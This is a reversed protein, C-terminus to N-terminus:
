NLNKVACIINSSIIIDNTEENDVWIQSEVFDVINGVKGKLELVKELMYESVNKETLFKMTMKIANEAIKFNQLLINGCKRRNWILWRRRQLVWSKWTPGTVFL